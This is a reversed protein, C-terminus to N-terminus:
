KPLKSDVAADKHVDWRSELEPAAQRARAELNRAVQSVMRLPISVHVTDHADDVDVILSGGSKVIRVHERPSDVEVLPGDPIRELEEAAIRMAPLFERARLAARDLECEPIIKMAAPVLIAPVYLRLNTGDPKKEHVRVGIIGTDAVVGAVVLTGTLFFLKVSM